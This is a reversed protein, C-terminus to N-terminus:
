YAGKIRGFWGRLPDELEQMYRDMRNILDLRVTEYEPAGYVNDLQYPDKQLDYLEGPDGSNFTFQHTRTRVMRQNAVTFHRDFVCYVEERGNHYPKGEIAHLFSEGDLADPVALGAADLASLMIEQLYVFENCATGPAQCEPHAIVLPIRYIEDYMFEGKEILRHAGMCDGHDATYVIITNDLVGLKELHAVVRGVMDDLLTCHGFYRAGIEQFGEWGYDGLGWLKEILQQRYPKGAFTEAYGPHEPIDRPDYLSFYPEPVLSPSHPGWFNAWLFFPEDGSALQDLVRNAEEAVFYEICSEVPGEHLAFMEQAQNSPNTGVYRHSVAPPPDFGREKLYDAYPNHGRPKAGFQLGPLLDSGPFAYGMFDQGIFGYSSPGTEEDVHWKGAYGCRYGAEALYHNVGRVGEDICLGNATVGHKHPYLGTYFSARAPSCIATPTFAADFRVGRAALADIHPTKCIDNLGYCSVTDLRQQDSMLVVVNPRKSM